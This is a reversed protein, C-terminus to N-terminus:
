IKLYFITCLLSTQIFFPMITKITIATNTANLTGAIASDQKSPALLHIAVHFHGIFHPASLAAAAGAFVVQAFGAHVVSAKYLLTGVAVTFYITSLM